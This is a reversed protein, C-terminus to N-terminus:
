NVTPEDRAMYVRNLVDLRPMFPVRNAVRETLVELFITMLAVLALQRDQNATQYNKVNPGLWGSLVAGAIRGLGNRGQRIGELYAHQFGQIEECVKGRNDEGFVREFLGSMKDALRELEVNASARLLMLEIAVLAMLLTNCAANTNPYALVFTDPEHRLCSRIHGYSQHNVEQQIVGLASCAADPDSPALAVTEPPTLELGDELSRDPWDAAAEPHNAFASAYAMPLLGSGDVQETLKVLLWTLFGVLAPDGGRGRRWDLALRSAIAWVPDDGDTVYGLVGQAETQWRESTELLRRIDNREPDYSGSLRAAVLAQFLRRQNDRDNEPLLVGPWYTIVNAVITNWHTEVLQHTQALAAEHTMTTRTM